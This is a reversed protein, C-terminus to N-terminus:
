RQKIARALQLGNILTLVGIFAYFATPSMAQGTMLGIHGGKDMVSWGWVGVGLVILFGAANGAVPFRMSLINAAVIAVIMVLLATDM